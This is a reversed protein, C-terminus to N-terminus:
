RFADKRRRLEAFAAADDELGLLAKLHPARLFPNTARELAISTPVTPAARARLAAIEEARVQLAANEQDVALAFRLNAETYEHACFVRTDEPLAALVQLSAWMQEPAGEFLRGCGLAFLADGVFAIREMDFVYAVHGLTHGGVALVRAQRAGICVTEGGQVIRGPAPAIRTVESPGTVLAGTAAALAANGGAHDPHWHTNWIQTIRWGAAAANALAADVEPTDVCVTEGSAPDHILFGYNDTLCSFQRIRLPPAEHMWAGSADTKHSRESPSTPM